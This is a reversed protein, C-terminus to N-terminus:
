EDSGGVEITEPTSLPIVSPWLRGPRRGPNRGSGGILPESVGYAFSLFPKPAEAALTEVQGEGRRSDRPGDRKTTTARQQRVAFPPPTPDHASTPYNRRASGNSEVRGSPTPADPPTRKTPDTVTTRESDANTAPSAYSAARTTPTSRTSTPTRNPYADLALGHRAAERRERKRRKQSIQRRKAMVLGRRTSHQHPGM